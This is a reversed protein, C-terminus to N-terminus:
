AAARGTVEEYLREYRRLMGGIEFHEMVRERGARGYREALEPRCVVQELADALSTADDSPVLLGTVGDVVVEPNGGVQTAVVPLGRAMAELLTLSIGESRSPLVFASARSLFGPVDAIEGLLLVRERLGLEDRLTALSEMEPGDGAIEIRFERKREALVAAARLLLALNKEQSLRAVVVIPGGTRPGTYDFTRTDIGNWITEIRRADIGQTASIVASDRSVCVFRAARRAALATLQTERPPVQYNQGHRTHVVRVGPAGLLAAAGYILSTNNHSHVLHPRWERLEGALRRVTRPHLRNPRGLSVVRWGAAEIDEAPRGREGLSVFLM